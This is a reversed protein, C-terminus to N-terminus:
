DKIKCLFTRNGTKTTTFDRKVREFDEPKAPSQQGLVWFCLKEWDVVEKDKGKKWTFIPIGASNVLSTKGGMHEKIVFELEAMRDKDEKSVKVKNKLFVLEDSKASIGNDQVSEDTVEYYKDLNPLDAIVHPPEEDNDIYCLFDKLGDYLAAHDEDTYEVDFVKLDNGGFYAVFDVKKIGTLMSQGCGQVWYYEPVGQEWKPLMRHGVNKIEILRDAIGNAEDLWVIGDCHCIIRPEDPHVQTEPFEVANRGTQLNYEYLVQSEMHNGTRMAMTEVVPPMEGKMRHFLEARTSTGYGRGIAQGMSSAGIKGSRFKIQEPTITM